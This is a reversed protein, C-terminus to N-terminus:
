KKEQELEAIKRAQALIFDAAEHPVSYVAGNEDRWTAQGRRLMEALLKVRLREAMQHADSDATM